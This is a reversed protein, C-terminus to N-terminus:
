SVPRTPLGSIMPRGLPDYFRLSEMAKKRRLYATWEVMTGAISHYRVLASASLDGLKLQEIPICM